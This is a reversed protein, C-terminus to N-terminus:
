STVQAVPKSVNERGAQVEDMMAGLIEAAWQRDM